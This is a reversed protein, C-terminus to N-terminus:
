EPWFFRITDMTAEEMKGADVFRHDANEIPYFPIDNEEAFERVPGIPVIEDKTGHILIIRDSVGIFSRMTIDAAKLSDLLTKGIRVKRHFGVPVEKGRKISDREKQTIIGDGEFVEFMKVAASRLAIGDFPNEHESIYKLVLYAGFSAAYAYLSRAGLEKRAYDIVLGLYRDCDSLDLSRRADEGHCPWDFALFGVDNRKRLVKQALRLSAKNEKNGGFGHCCLVVQSLSDPANDYMKCRVSCGDKNISLYKFIM